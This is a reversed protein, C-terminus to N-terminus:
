PGSGGIVHVAHHLDDTFQDLPLHGVGSDRADVEVDVSQILVAGQHPPRNVVEPLTGAGSDVHVVILGVGQVKGEPFRGLRALGDPVGRPPRAPRAPVNFTRCHRLLM